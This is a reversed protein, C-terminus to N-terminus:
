AGGSEQCLRVRIAADAWRTVLGVEADHDGSAQSDRFAAHVSTIGCSRRSRGLSKVM